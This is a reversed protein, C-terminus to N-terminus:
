LVADKGSIPPPSPCRTAIEAADEPAGTLNKIDLRDAGLPPNVTALPLPRETDDTAARLIVGILAATAPSCSVVSLVLTGAVSRATSIASAAACAAASLFASSM